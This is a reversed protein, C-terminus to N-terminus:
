RRARSRLSFRMRPQIRSSQGRMLFFGRPPLGPEREEVLTAQHHRREQPARPVRPAFCWQEVVAPPRMALHGGDPRQAHRGLAVVDAEVKAEVGIGVDVGLPDDTEESLEQGAMEEVTSVFIRFEAVSLSNGRRGQTRKKEPLRKTSRAPNTPVVGDAVAADFMLRMVKLWGNVTANPWSTTERWFRRISLCPGAPPLRDATPTTTSRMGTPTAIPIAGMATSM